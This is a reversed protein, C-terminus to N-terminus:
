EGKSRLAIDLTKWYDLNRRLETDREAGKTNQEIALTFRRINMDVKARDFQPIGQRILPQPAPVPAEAQELATSGKRAMWILLAAVALAGAVIFWLEM